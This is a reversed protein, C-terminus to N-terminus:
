LAPIQTGCNGCFRKKFDLMKGCEKGDKKGACFLQLQCKSCFKAIERLTTGCRPCMRAPTDRIQIQVDDCAKQLRADNPYVRMADQLVTLAQQFQRADNLGRADNLTQEVQAQRLILENQLASIESDKPALERARTLSSLASALDTDAAARAQTLLERAARQRTFKDRLQRPTRSTEDLQIARELLEFARDFNDVAFHREAEQCLQQIVKFKNRKEELADLRERIETDGPLLDEAARLQAIAGDYDEEEARREAEAFYGLIEQRRQENVLVQARLMEGYQELLKRTEPDDPSAFSELEQIAEAYRQTKFLFRAYERRIMWDAPLLQKAEAFLGEAVALRKRNAESWALRILAQVQKIKKIREIAQKVDSVAPDDPALTRARVWHDEGRADDGQWVLTQALGLLSGVHAPKHCLVMEFIQRATALNEEGLELSGTLWAIADNSPESDRAAQLITRTQAADHMLATKFKSSADRWRAMEALLIAHWVLAVTAHSERDLAQMFLADADAYRSEWRALLAGEVFSQADAREDNQIDM